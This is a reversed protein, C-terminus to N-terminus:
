SDLFTRIENELSPLDHLKCEWLELTRWGMSELAALNRLDRARNGELKPLWFEHRSKPLRALRCDPDPHRHWFCGHVFIAKRRVPFVLDPTGPLKKAHLRFRYGLRHVTSRVLREARSGSSKVRSMRESRQQPTLTDM